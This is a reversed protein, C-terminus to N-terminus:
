LVRRLAILLRELDEASNYVQVSVRLLQLGNVDVAAVEIRFEEYLRKRLAEADIPPLPCAVMQSYWRDDGLSHLPPQQTLEYVQRQAQGALEHCRARAAPWNHERMFALAEPVVVFRSLDRTGIEQVYRTFNAASPEPGNWPWSVVLPEILHQVEPRAYLFATGKPCCAWKHLNGTYFDAGLEDLALPIQGPAHAGDILTLIGQRRARRCIDEVPLILATLSTIHSIAIVRTRPTVAQWFGEAVQEPSTVPLPIPQRRYTFGRKGALFQWTRDIAGYEQDTALVEDGPGLNLSHAVVNVGATANTVFAVNAAATGLYAALSERPRMLSRHEDLFAQPHEELQRQLDFYKELV